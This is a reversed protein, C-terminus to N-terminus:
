KLNSISSHIGRKKSVRNKGLGIGTKTNKNENKYGNDDSLIYCASPLTESGL